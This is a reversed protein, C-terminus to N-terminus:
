TFFSLSFSLFSSALCALRSLVRWLFSVCSPSCCCGHSPVLCTRRSPKRRGFARGGLEMVLDIGVLVLGPVANRLAM